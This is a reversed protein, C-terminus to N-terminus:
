GRVRELKGALEGLDEIRAHARAAEPRQAHLFGWPGRRILVAIMGVARAPLVDHDLRDGVYAIAGAAMQL